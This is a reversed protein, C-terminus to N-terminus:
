QSVRSQGLREIISVAKASLSYLDETKGFELGNKKWVARDTSALMKELTLNLNLQQFPSNLVMGANAQKIYPAYGCVDTTLVPLGAIVAELLVMGANEHYAPHILLDAALLFAPVDHRGGLFHVRDALHLKHALKQFLGPNDHGIVFLQTRAKLPTPLAAMAYLSRDLGKTKFGSGVMLLLIDDDNLAYQKRLNARIEAANAPAMRDRAIGPPLLHFRESETRYFQQFIGQQMATLLLIETKAGRAFVARELAALQRYRPLLRYLVGHRERARSRFCVDAAYYLDLFPMKNFGIVLDPKDQQLCTYFSKVFYQNKIHNQLHPVPILKIEWNAPKEGVWDMTYVQIQHGRAECAQAIAFFDRQLGGYPFYKFLCFALKM